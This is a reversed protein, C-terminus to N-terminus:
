QNDGGGMLKELIGIIGSLDSGDAGGGPTYDINM